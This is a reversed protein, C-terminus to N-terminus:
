KKTTKSIDKVISVVRELSHTSETGNRLNKLTYHNDKLENEGVVIVYPIRKKHCNDLQKSLKKGSFDVALNVGEERLMDIQKSVDFYTTGNLLIICLETETTLEPILNNDRLFNELTVDGMGFGVTPVKEVGFLEVLGDYRGGGYMSRNNNPNSDFIEFVIDTYYDFGRVLTPDFQANEIGVRKLKEILDFVAGLSSDDRLEEPMDKYTKSNLVNEIIAITNNDRALPPIVAELNAIFEDRSMKSKKDILRRITDSTVNDLNLYNALFNDMFKRSNIRIEYMSRKAAFSQLIADAIQIIEVEAEITSIGFIDVNLQWFERLRGRQPREYRWLNPISYWRLPYVLHQRRAAVMRSVSPTMETRLTINRGGRDVFSYSQENVIEQSGKLRYIDSSEIVPADYEEYGFREVASRLTEFMWKQLRKDEPYFDRTGKYGQSSIKM